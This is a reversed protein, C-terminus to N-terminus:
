TTMMLFIEALQAFAVVRRTTRENWLESIGFDEGGGGGGQGM